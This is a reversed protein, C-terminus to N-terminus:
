KKKKREEYFVISAGVALVLLTGFISIYEALEMNDFLIATIFILAIVAIFGNIVVAMRWDSMMDKLFNM